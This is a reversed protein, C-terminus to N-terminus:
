YPPRLYEDHADDRPVGVPPAPPSSPPAPRVVPPRRTPEGEAELTRQFEATVEGSVRRVESLLHALQRALEPLKGPGFVILALALILLLELPGMGLFNM